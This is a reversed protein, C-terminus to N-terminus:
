SLLGGLTEFVRLYRLDNWTAFVMLGLVLALGVRYGWEQAGEGLPRGAVAEYAYYVLHGGDLIPIPLLNLLGIGVSLVGALTLLALAANGMARLPSQDGVADYATEATKGSLAAIRLPGGLHEASERGTIVRALYRGTGEVTRWTRDAGRGIAGIPGYRVTVIDSEAFSPAVGLYGIELDRGFPDSDTRRGLTVPVDERVGAREVTFTVTDGGRLMVFERVDDFWRIARGEAAVILDGVQVGAEAAPTEAMVEGVRALRHREGFAGYLAAFIAIALIFNAIPGAAAVAARQWVPKFHLCGAVADEGHERAIRDKIEQLANHDPTSAANADGFFKVYGGLPIAAVRWEVGHKDTWGFLRRGFGISFAEVTVGCWRGMWYHGLEHIVVVLSFVLLFSLIYGFSSTIFEIM